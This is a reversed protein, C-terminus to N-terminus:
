LDESRKKYQRKLQARAVDMFGIGIEGLWQDTDRKLVLGPQMPTCPTYAGEVHAIVLIRSQKHEAPTQLERPLEDQGLTLWWMASSLQLNRRKGSGGMTVAVPLRSAYIVLCSPPSSHADLLYITHETHIAAARMM